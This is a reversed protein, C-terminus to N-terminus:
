RFDGLLVHDRQLRIEPEGRLLVSLSWTGSAEHISHHPALFPLAVYLGDFTELHSSPWGRCVPPASGWSPARVAMLCPWSSKNNNINNNIINNINNINGGDCGRSGLSCGDDCPVPESCTDGQWGKLCSCFDPELCRGHRCPRSCLATQCHSGSWGALCVCHGPM